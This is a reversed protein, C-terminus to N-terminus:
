NKKKDEQISFKRMAFYSSVKDSGFTFNVLYLNPEEPSWSLIPKPLEILAKGEIPIEGEIKKGTKDAIIYKIKEESIKKNNNNSIICEPEFEIKGEDYLPTM